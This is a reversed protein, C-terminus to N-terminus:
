RLPPPYKRIQAKTLSILNFSQWKDTLFRFRGIGVGPEATGHMKSTLTEWVDCGAGALIRAKARDDPLKPNDVILRAQFTTFIGLTNKPDFPARRPAYFHFNRGPILKASVGGDPEKRLNIPVNGNGAFDERYAAGIVATYAQALHWKLDNKTLEYAKINRVEVRVNKAPNGQAAPYAQGWAVIAHFRDLVAPPVQELHHATPGRSWSYSKPVGEPAAEHPKSMDGIITALSNPVTAEAPVVSRAYSVVAGGAIMSVFVVVFRFKRIM